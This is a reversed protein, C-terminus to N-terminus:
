VVSPPRGRGLVVPAEGLAVAAAEVVAVVVGLGDTEDHVHVDARGGCACVGYPLAVGELGV